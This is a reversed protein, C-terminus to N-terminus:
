GIVDLFRPSNWTSFSVSGYESMTFISFTLSPFFIKFSGFYLCNKQKRPFGLSIVPSKEDSVISALLCHFLINLISLTLFQSFLIWCDDKLFSLLIFVFLKSGSSGDLRLFLEKFQFTVRPEYNLYVCFLM